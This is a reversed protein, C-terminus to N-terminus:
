WVTCRDVPNMNTGPACGFDKAFEPMNSMPGIVRFEAPSHPDTVVRAKLAAPRMKNCWINGAAIWFMQQSSYPLGPLRDEVGNREEWANYAYYAEKIGGNDAINEGQTNKGNIKLGVEKVTYNSYQDIICQAKKLYKAKTEQEWWEALNGEKDFQRGQDDFGHTMEHGMVYGIGGFNLYNPRDNGFFEDQLIGAPFQISNESPEYFANVIASQGHTIWDTKNVPKRFQELEYAMKFLNISLQSKLFSDPYMKLFQHYDDLKKDDLFESPYAIYPQIANLKDLAAQKTKKDMWDVKELMHHFSQRIEGILETVKDKSSEDFYNRVYMAGTAIYLNDAAANVCEKWRPQKVSTGTMSASFESQIKQVREGMSDASDFAVRWIAYNALVRPSASKLIGSLKELYSPVAVIIRENPQVQTHPALLQNMYESWRTVESYRQELQEITMPNYLKEIDRREDSPLSIQALQIEFDLVAAMDKTANSRTAGFLEAFDVMFKYYAQVVKENLGKSLYEQPIGLSAQDLTIIRKSNDKMDVGIDLGVFIDSSYGLKRLKYITKKWDFDSDDWSSGHLVPWGGLKKLIDKFDKDSTQEIKTTNMCTKFYTKLLQFTRPDKKENIDQQLSIKLQVQLKDNIKSFTDVKSKEDPIVTEKIFRGCAFRYFDDCPKVNTDMADLIGAAAHVCGRTECIKDSVKTPRQVHDTEEVLRIPRVDRPSALCVTFGVILVVGLSIRAGRSDKLLM